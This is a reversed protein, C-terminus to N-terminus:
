VENSHRNDCQSRYRDAWALIENMTKKGCGSIYILNERTIESVYRLKSAMLLRRSRVSLRNFERTEDFAQLICCDGIASRISQIMGDSVPHSEITATKKPPTCTTRVDKRLEILEDVVAALLCVALRENSMKSIERNIAGRTDQGFEDCIRKGIECFLMDVSKRNM